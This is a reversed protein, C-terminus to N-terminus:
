APDDFVEEDEDLVGLCHALGALTLGLKYIEGTRWDIFFWRGHLARAASGKRTLMFNLDDDKKKVRRIRKILTATSILRVDGSHKPDAPIM